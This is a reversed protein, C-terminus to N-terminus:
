WDRYCLTLHITQDMKFLKRLRRTFLKQSGRWAPMHESQGYKTVVVLKRFLIAVPRVRRLFAFIVRLVYPGIRGLVDCSLQPVWNRDLTCQALPQALGAFESFVTAKDCFIYRANFFAEPRIFINLTRGYLKLEFMVNDRPPKLM